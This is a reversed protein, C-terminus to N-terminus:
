RSPGCHLGYNAISAALANALDCEAILGPPWFQAIVEDGLRAQVPARGEPAAHFPARGAHHYMTTTLLTAKM